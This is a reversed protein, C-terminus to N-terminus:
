DIFWCYIFNRTENEDQLGLNSFSIRTRTKFCSISLYFNKNEDRIHSQFFSMRTRTELTSIPKEDCGPGPKQSWAKSIIRFIKIWPWISPCPLKIYSNPYSFVSSIHTPFHSFYPWWTASTFHSVQSLEPLRGNSLFNPAREALVDGPVWLGADGERQWWLLILSSLFLFAFLKCIKHHSIQFWVQDVKLFQLFTKSQLCRCRYKMQMQVIVLSSGLPRTPGSRFKLHSCPIAM